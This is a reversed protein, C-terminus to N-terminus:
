GISEPNRALLYIEPWKRWRSNAYRMRIIMEGDTYLTVILRALSGLVDYNFFGKSVNHNFYMNTALLM